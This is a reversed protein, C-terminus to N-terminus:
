VDFGGPFRATVVCKVNRPHSDMGDTMECSPVIPSGGSDLANTIKCSALITAAAIWIGNDALHRGVCVRRGYGFVDTFKPEPSTPLFREPNFSDPTTYISADLSIGKINAFVVAGKPIMWGRYEDEAELVHPIGLQLVPNWRYVEQVLAEVYPLDKRDALTPLHAEGLVRDLEEQAKLQTQPHLIMALLFVTLTSLTTLKGGIFGTAGAGQLEEKDLLADARELQHLLFSETATEAERQENLNVENMPHELLHHAIPPKSRRRCPTRRPVLWPLLGPIPVHGRGDGWASGDRHIDESSRRRTYEDDESTIEHGNMAYVAVTTSFESLYREYEEDERQEDIMRKALRRAARTQVDGFKLLSSEPTLYTQLAQRHRRFREGSSIFPLINKWGMFKPRGSYIASRKELLEVAADHSGLVIFSVGPLQLHMVDGYKQAWQHYTDAIKTVPMSRLHGILPDQPPGPPLHANRKLNPRLGLVVLAALVAGATPLSDPLAPM